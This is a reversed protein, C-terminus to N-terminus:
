VAEGFEINPHPPDYANEKLIRRIAYKRLSDVCYEAGKEQLDDDQCVNESNL